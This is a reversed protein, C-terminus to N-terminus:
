GDDSPPAAAVGALAPETDAGNKRAPANGTTEANLLGRVASIGAGANGILTTLAQTVGDAGNLVTMNNIGHFAGAAAAVIAPYNEALQQGIVAEQNEALAQARAEISKAEALGKAETAEGEAVGRAKTASAEAVGVQQIAGAEASATVSRREAEAGATLRVKEAEAAAALKVRQAEAAAELEVTQKRAQAKAIDADRQANAVTITQYAQADAPKRVTAQLQKEALDANLEAAKTQEVVVNQMAAAEALPGAQNAEATAKDVDAQYAAQKIQADRRAEAMLAEAEQERQTAERDAAAQAIRAQSAVASTYPKALNEIYGTPDDIEHIQLSDIILGLKEMETSSSERTESTLRARDRIMEEVTLGGVISRLHGAFVNHVRTEMQDEQDLFRRAANATSTYDDGVKFIVVGRVGIPIGQSTVCDVQLEAEKLDLNLRRVVQVGPIVLIGRGVVIRFGFDAGSEHVHRRGSVILAQNPEPVKWMARFLGIVLLILVVPIAALAAIM